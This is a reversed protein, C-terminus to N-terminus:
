ILKKNIFPSNKNYLTLVFSCILTVYYSSAYKIDQNLSLVSLRFVLNTFSVTSFTSRCLATNFLVIVVCSYQTFYSKMAGKINPYNFDGLLFLEGELKSVDVITQNLPDNSDITSNTSRYM